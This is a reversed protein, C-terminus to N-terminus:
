PPGGHLRVSADEDVDNGSKGEDDQAGLEGLGLVGDFDVPGEGDKLAVDGVLGAGGVEGGESGGYRGDLSAAAVTELLGEGEAVQDQGTEGVGDALDADVRVPGTRDAVRSGDDVANLGVWCPSEGGVGVAVASGLGVGM